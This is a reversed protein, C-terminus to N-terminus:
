LSLINSFLFTHVRSQLIGYKSLYVVIERWFCKVGLAALEGTGGSGWPDHRSTALCTCLVESAKPAMAHGLLTQLHSM